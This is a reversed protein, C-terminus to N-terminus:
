KLFAKGTPNLKAILEVLNKTDTKQLLRMKYTSVTKNSLCMVRAIDCNSLGNLLYRLVRNEQASLSHLLSASPESATLEALEVTPHWPFFAYGANVADLARPLDAVLNAEDILAAAGRRRFAETASECPRSTMLLTKGAYHRNNFLDLVESASIAPLEANMLVMDPQYEEVLNLAEFGNTAHGIIQMNEQLLLDDILGRKQVHSEVVIIRNMM